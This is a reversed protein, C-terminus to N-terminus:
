LPKIILKMSDETFYKNKWKVANPESSYAIFGFKEYLTKANTNNSIVTLNIQEIDISKVRQLLEEILKKAIGHGRFNTAVYMRFLTGKHRIKERNSGEREFSVIGALENDVYSGITFSDSTNKTPFPEGIVDNPAIRFKEEDLILGKMFFHDYREKEDSKIERIMINKEM